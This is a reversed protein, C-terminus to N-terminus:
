DPLTSVDISFSGSMLTSQAQQEDGDFWYRSQGQSSLTRVFYRKVPVSARGDQGIAQVHLSHLGPQLGKVNAKFHRSSTVIARADDEDFWYKIKQGSATTSIGCLL